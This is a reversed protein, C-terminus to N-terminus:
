SLLGLHSGARRSRSGYLVARIGGRRNSARNKHQNQEQDQFPVRTRVDLELGRLSWSSWAEAARMGM